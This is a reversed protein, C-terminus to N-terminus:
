REEEADCPPRGVLQGMVVFTLSRGDPWRLTHLWRDGRDGKIEVFNLSMEERPIDDASPDAVARLELDFVPEGELCRVTGRQAELVTAHDRSEVVRFQMAGVARGDRSLHYSESFLITKSTGDPVSAQTQQAHAIFGLVVEDGVEPLAAADTNLRAPEPVPALLPPAAPDCGTLLVAAAAATWARAIKLRRMM